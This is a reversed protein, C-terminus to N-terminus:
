FMKNKDRQTKRKEKKKKRISQHNHLFPTRPHDTQAAVSAALHSCGLNQIRLPSGKRQPNQSAEWYNPWQETLKIEKDKSTWEHSEIRIIKQHWKSNHLWCCTTSKLCTSAWTWWNLPLLELYDNGQTEKDMPSSIGKRPGLKISYKTLEM